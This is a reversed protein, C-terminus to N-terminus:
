DPINAQYLTPNLIHVYRFQKFNYVNLSICSVKLEEQYLKFLYTLL